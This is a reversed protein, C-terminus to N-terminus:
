SQKKDLLGSSTIIKYVADDDMRKEVGEVEGEYGQSLMWMFADQQKLAYILAVLWPPIDFGWIKLVASVRHFNGLPDGGHTYDKNKVSHLAMLEEFKKYVRPDGLKKM